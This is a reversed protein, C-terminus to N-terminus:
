EPPCNLPPLGLAAVAQQWGWSNVLMQLHPALPASLTMREGTAPHPFTMRSCALMLGREFHHEILRNHTGKGHKIDGLIPHSIHKLHRRIQHKRGEHPHLAMLAYRTQPYRDVAIPLCIRALTQYDTTATQVPLTRTDHRDISELQLPHDIHGRPQPWGRVIALYTKDVLRQSFSHALQSAMEPSRAFILLGSTPRDLRHVPYVYRGGNLGRAYQLAFATEHRDIPSRHVLLGAPKYVALLAEDQYLRILPNHIPIAGLM